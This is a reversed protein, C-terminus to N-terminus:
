SPYNEIICSGKPRTQSNTTNSYTLHKEPYQYM